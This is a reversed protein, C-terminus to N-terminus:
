HSVSQYFITLPQADANLDYSAAASLVGKHDDIMTFDANPYLQKFLGFYYSKYVADKSHYIESVKDAEFYKHLTDRSFVRINSDM